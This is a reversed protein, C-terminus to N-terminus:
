SMRPAPRRPEGLPELDGNELEAIGAGYGPGFRRESAGGAVNYWGGRDGMDFLLHFVPGGVQRQGAITARRRQLPAVPGGRLTRVPADLGLIGPLKGDFYANVFPARIPGEKAAVEKARPWARALLAGLGRADLDDPRELALLRDLEHEFALLLMDNHEFLNRAAETGVLPELLARAVEVRAVAFLGSMRARDRPPQERAWAVLARAEEDDPLHPEWIPVMTRAALDHEDYSAALLAGLDISTRAALLETLREQRWRAEPFSIWREGSPGDIRENASVFFGCAPDVQCPRAEESMRPPNRDALDWGKRPYAGTWGAPRADVRGTLVRGIRGGADAFLAHIPVDEYSRHVRVLEDVDRCSETAIATDASRASGDLGSWRVSPYDGRVRADGEFSGYDTDGFVWTEPTRSGKVRVVEERRRVPHRSAGALHFGSECREVLIDVDDCHGFTCTWSVKSTRGASTWALGPFVVGQLFEGDEFDMHLIYIPPPIKCTELHFECHLLASGPTSRSAAVAMANSGGLGAIGALGGKPMRMAALEDVDIGEALPGLLLDIARKPAGASVLEAVLGEAGHQQSVLGFFLITRQVLLVDRATLPVAPLGLLRMVLPRAHVKIGANFGACYADVIRRADESLSAAQGELGRTLQFLRAGRDILRHIPKEGVFELLRGEGIVRALYVQAMRDLAILWGHAYAGDIRDRARIRPYGWRDREFVIPGRPGPITGM